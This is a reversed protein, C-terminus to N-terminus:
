VDRRLGDAGRTREGVRDYRSIVVGAEGARCRRLMTSTAACARTLYVGAHGAHAVPNFGRYQGVVTVDATPRSVGM